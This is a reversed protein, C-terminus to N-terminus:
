ASGIVKQGNMRLSFTSIMLPIISGTIGNRDVSSISLYKGCARTIHNGSPWMDIPNIRACINLHDTENKAIYYSLGWISIKIISGSDQAIYVNDRRITVWLPYQKLIQSGKILLKKGQQVVEIFKIYKM